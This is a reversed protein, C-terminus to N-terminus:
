HALVFLKLQLWQASCLNHENRSLLMRKLMMCTMHVHFVTDRHHVVHQHHPQIDALWYGNKYHKCRYQVALKGYKVRMFGRYCHLVYANIWQIPFSYISSFLICMFYLHLFFFFHLAVFVMTKWANICNILYSWHEIWRYLRLMTFFACTAQYSSFWKSRTQQTM